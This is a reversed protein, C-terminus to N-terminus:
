LHSRQGNGGFRGFFGLSDTADAAFPIDELSDFNLQSNGVIM